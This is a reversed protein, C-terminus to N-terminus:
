RCRCRAPTARGWARRAGRHGGAAAGRDGGGARGSPGSCEILADAESPEDRGAVLTRTAGTRAALALRTENVDSIEVQTAGFALAVQMALLGIPGAGTVLVRDGATVGAKRCAWIGVSLPEM